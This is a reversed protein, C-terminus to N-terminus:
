VELPIYLYILPKCFSLSALPSIDGERSSLITFVLFIGSRTSCPFQSLVTLYLWLNQHAAQLCSTFQLVQEGRVLSVQLLPAGFWSSSSLTWWILFLRVVLCVLVPPRACTSMSDIVWMVPPAGTAESRHLFAWGKELRLSKILPGLFCPACTRHTARFNIVESHVQLFFPDLFLWLVLLGEWFSILLSNCAM